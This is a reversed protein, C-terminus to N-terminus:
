EFKGHYLDGSREQMLKDGIAAHLNSGFYRTLFYNKLMVLDWRSLKTLCTPLRFNNTGICIKLRNIIARGLFSDEKNIKTAVYSSFREFDTDSMAEIPDPIGKTKCLLYCVRAITSDTFQKFGNDANSIQLAHTRIKVLKEPVCNFEGVDSLRLWLDIDQARRMRPRYGNISKVASLRFFATSHAPFAKRSFLAKKLGKDSRPYKYLKGEFGFKDIFQIYSGVLCIKQNQNACEFQLMLRNPLCIDDCDIRAIWAGRAIRIGANLSDALGTNEKNLVKIRSDTSAYGNIIELSCDESGDNVIIFEFDTFTQNLVSPISQRLWPEGNFVSMLVTIPPAAKINNKLKDTMIYM